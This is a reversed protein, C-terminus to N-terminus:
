ERTLPLLTFCLPAFAWSFSIIRRRPKRHNFNRRGEGARNKRKKKKKFITHFHKRDFIHSLPCFLMKSQESNVPYLIFYFNEGKTSTNKARQKNRSIINFLALAWSYLNSANFSLCISQNKACSRVGRSRVKIFIQRHRISWSIKWEGNVSKELRFINDTSSLVRNCLSEQKYREVSLKFQNGCDGSAFAIWITMSPLFFWKVNKVASAEVKKGWQFSWLEPCFFYQCWDHWTTESYVCCQGGM